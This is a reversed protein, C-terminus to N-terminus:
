RLIRHNAMSKPPFYRSCTRAAIRTIEKICKTGGCPTSLECRGDIPAPVLTPRRMTRYKSAPRSTRSPAGSCHRRGFESRGGASQPLGRAHPQPCSRSREVGCFSDGLRPIMDGKVRTPPRSVIKERGPGFNAGPLGGRSGTRDNWSDVELSTTANGSSERKARASRGQKLHQADTM